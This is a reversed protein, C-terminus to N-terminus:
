EDRYEWDAFGIAMTAGGFLGFVTSIAAMVESPWTLSVLVGIAILVAGCLIMTRVPGFGMM